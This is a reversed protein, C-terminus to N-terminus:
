KHLGGKAASIGSKAEDADAEDPFRRLYEDWTGVAQQKKNLSMYLMAMYAYANEVKLSNPGRTIKRYLALADGSKGSKQLSEAMLLSVEADQLSLSNYLDRGITIQQDFHVEMCQEPNVILLKKSM